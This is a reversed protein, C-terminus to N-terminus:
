CWRSRCWRTPTPSTTPCRSTRRPRRRSATSSARLGDAHRREQDQPGAVVPLGAALRDPRPRQRRRRRPPLAPVRARRVGVAHPQRRTPISSGPTRTTSRATPASRSAASRTRCRSSARHLHDPGRVPHRARDPEAGDQGHLRARRLLPHRQDAARDRSRRERLRPAPRGHRAPHQRPDREAPGARRAAADHRRQARRERQRRHRGSGRPHRQRRAPHQVRGRDRAINPPPGQSDAEITETKINSKLNFFAVAAVSGGSSSSSPWRPASRPRAGIAMRDRAEATRPARDRGPAGAEASRDRKQSM